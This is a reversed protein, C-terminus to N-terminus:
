YKLFLLEWPYLKLFKGIFTLTKELNYLSAPNEDILPIPIGSTLMFCELELHTVLSISESHFSSPKLAAPNHLCNLSAQNQRLHSRLTTPDLGVNSEPSGQCQAGLRNLVSERGRGRWRGWGQLGTCTHATERFHM